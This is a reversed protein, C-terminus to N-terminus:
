HASGLDKTLWLIVGHDMSVDEGRRLPRPGLCAGRGDPLYGRRAYLRQAPGYEDFLGVTIGLETAGHGRALDEAAALLRAGIGARRAPGAVAVQHVLPIGRGAFGAYNSVWLLSVIGVAEGDRVGLLSAGGTGGHAALYTRAAAEGDSVWNMLFRVAAETNADSVPEITVPANQM